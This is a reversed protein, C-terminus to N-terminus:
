RMPAIVVTRDDTKYEVYRMVVGNLCVCTITDGVAMMDVMGDFFGPRDVDAVMAASKYLWSTFGAAYALVHLHRIQATM